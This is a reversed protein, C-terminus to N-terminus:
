PEAPLLGAADTHKKGTSTGVVLAGAFILITGLWRYINVEERLFLKGLLTSLIYGSATLPLVVSLDALSLLAMRTVLGLILAGIGIAVYPNFLARAYLFPNLALLSSFHRMGWALSLNGLPRLFVVLALLRYARAPLRTTSGQTRM